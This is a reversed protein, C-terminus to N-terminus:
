RPAPPSLWAPFDATAEASPWILVLNYALFLSNIVACLALARAADARLGRPEQDPDLWALWPRSRFHWAIAPLSWLMGLLLELLPWQRPTGPWLALSQPVRNWALMGQRIGSFEFGTEFATVSAVGILILLLPSKIWRSLQKLLAAAALGVLPIMWFFVSAEMMLPQDLLTTAPALAPLFPMWDGRNLFHANYSFSHVKANVLSEQWYVSSWAITQMVPWSLRRRRLSIVVLLMLWLVALGFIAREAGEVSTALTDPVAISSRHLPIDALLWRIYGYLQFLIFGAGALALWTL